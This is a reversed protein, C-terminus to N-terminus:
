IIGHRRGFGKFYKSICIKYTDRVEAMSDFMTALTKTREVKGLSYAVLMSRLVAGKQEDNLKCGSSSKHKSEIISALQIVSQEVSLDMMTQDTADAFLPAASKANAGLLRALFIPGAQMAIKGLYPCAADKSCIGAHHDVLTIGRCASLPLDFLLMYENTIGGHFFWQNTGQDYRLPGHDTEPNYEHLSYDAYADESILMRIIKQRGTTQNEVWYVHKDQILKKWNFIFVVNGYISGPGWTNPSVWSVCSRTKKLISEDFILSSRIRGDEIIRLADEVHAVHYVFKFAAWSSANRGLAFEEWPRKAM